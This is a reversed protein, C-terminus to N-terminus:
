GSLGPMTRTQLPTTTWLAIQAISSISPSPRATRLMAANIINNSAITNIAITPTTTDIQLIGAPNYNTAGSLVANNTAADKITAGNLNFSSVVLDPTNQGAAVTYSFTLASTGSGGVYAATGSDNLALTPSGGATNVTVPASFNVTLTMAKGANLDGNGNTIGTGSTVISSVTPATTNLTYTVPSSVGTNGAPDTDQATLTNPGNTLTVSTSWSGDAQVTATGAAITGDFVTVTTGATGGDADTVTGTV